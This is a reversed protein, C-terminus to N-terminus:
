GKKHSVNKIDRFKLSSGQQNRVWRDIECHYFRLHKGLRHCPIPNENAFRQRTQEYIWSKPVQLKKALQDITLLINQHDASPIGDIARHHIQEYTNVTEVISIPINKHRM